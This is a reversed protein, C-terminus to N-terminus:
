TVSSTLTHKDEQMACPEIVGDDHKRPVRVRRPSCPNGAPAGWGRHRTRDKGGKRSALAQREWITRSVLKLIEGVRAQTARCGKDRAVLELWLGMEEQRERPRPGHDLQLHISRGPQRV